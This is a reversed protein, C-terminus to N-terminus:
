FSIPQGSAICTVADGPNLNANLRCWAACDHQSIGTTSGSGGQALSFSCTNAGPNACFTTYATDTLNNVSGTLAGTFNIPSNCNPEMGGSQLNPYLACANANPDHCMYPSAAAARVGTFAGTNPDVVVTVTSLRGSLPNFLNATVNGSNSTVSVNGISIGTNNVFSLTQGLTNTITNGSSSVNGVNSQSVSTGTPVGAANSSGDSSSASKGASTTGSFEKGGCNQFAILTGLVSATLAVKYVNKM